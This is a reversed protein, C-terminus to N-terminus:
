AEHIRSPTSPMTYTRTALRDQDLHILDPGRSRTSHLDDVSCSHV